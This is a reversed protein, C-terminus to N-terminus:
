MKARDWYEKESKAIEHEPNRRKARLRMAERFASHHAALKERREAAKRATHRRWLEWLNLTLGHSMAAQDEKLDDLYGAM